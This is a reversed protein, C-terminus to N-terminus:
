IAVTRRALVRRHREEVTEEPLDHEDTWRRKALWNAPYSVFRRRDLDRVDRRVDPSQAYRRMGNVVDKFEVADSQEIRELESLAADKGVKLPVVNWFQEKYDAPWQETKRVTAPQHAPVKGGLDGESKPVDKYSVAALGVCRTAVPEARGAHIPHTEPLPTHPSDPGTVSGKGIPSRVGSSLHGSGGRYTVSGKNDDQYTVSGEPDVLFAGWDNLRYRNSGDKGDDTKTHEVDLVAKCSVFKTQGGSRTQRQGSKLEKIIRKVASVDKACDNAITEYRPYACGWLSEDTGPKGENLRDVVSFLARFQADTIEPDRCFSRMQKLTRGQTIKIKSGDPTSIVPTQHDPKRNSKQNNKPM